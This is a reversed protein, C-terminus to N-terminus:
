VVVVYMLLFILQNYVHWDSFNLFYDVFYDWSAVVMLVNYYALNLDFNIEIDVVVVNVVVIVIDVLQMLLQEVVVNDM